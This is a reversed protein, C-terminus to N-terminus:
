VLIGNVRDMMQVAKAGHEYNNKIAYVNIATRRSILQGAVLCLMLAPQAVM